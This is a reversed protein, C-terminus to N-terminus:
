TYKVDDYMLKLNVDNHEKKRKKYCYIACPIGCVFICVLVVVLVLLGVVLTVWNRTANDSGSNDCASSDQFISAGPLPPGNLITYGKAPDNPPFTAFKNYNYDWIIQMFKPYDGFFDSLLVNGIEGKSITYFDNLANPYNNWQDATNSKVDGTTFTWWVGILPYATNNLSEQKYKILKPIQGTNCKALMGNMTKADSYEGVQNQKYDWIWGQRLGPVVAPASWGYSMVVLSGNASRNWIQTLTMTPLSGNGPNDVIYPALTCRIINALHLVPFIGLNIFYLCSVNFLVVYL